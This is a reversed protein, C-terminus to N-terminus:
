NVPVIRKWGGLPEKVTVGSDIMRRVVDKTEGSEASLKTLTDGLRRVTEIGRGDYRVVAYERPLQEPV